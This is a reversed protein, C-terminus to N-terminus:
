KFVKTWDVLEYENWHLTSDEPCPEALSVV